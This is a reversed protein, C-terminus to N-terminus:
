GYVDEESEETKHQLHAEYYYDYPNTWYDYDGLFRVAPVYYKSYTDYKGGEEKVYFVYFPLVYTDYDNRFGDGALYEFSVYDYETIKIDEGACLVCVNGSFFQNNFLMGEAAQLSIMDATYVVPFIEQPPTRFKVYKITTAIATKGWESYSFVISIYDSYFGIKEHEEFTANNQPPAYKNIANDKENYFYVTIYKAAADNESYHRVVKMDEFNCDLMAFLADKQNALSETIEDDSYSSSFLLKKDDLIMAYKKYRETMRVELEYYFPYQKFNLSYKGIDAKLRDGSYEKYEPETDDTKKLFEAMGNVTANAFDKLSQSDYTSEEGYVYKLYYAHRYRYIDIPETPIDNLGLEEVNSVYVKQPETRSGYKSFAAKFSEGRLSGTYKPVSYEIEVPTDQKITYLAAVSATIALFAAIVCATIIIARKKM